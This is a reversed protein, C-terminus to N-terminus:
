SHAAAPNGHKRVDEESVGMKAFVELQEASFAEPKDKGPEGTPTRRGIPVEGAKATKVIDELISLPASKIAEASLPIVKGAAQAQRILEARKLEDREAKITAVDASLTDITAKVEASMAAPPAKSLSDVKAAADTLAKEVAAEDAEATLTVGLAALLAILAPHPKMDPQKIEIELSTSLAAFFPALQAPATAAEITLGDIEGHRCLGASHLAYVTGDERRFVAPSLDRFHGGELAAKGEPTWQLDTLVIGVGKEVAPVGYAAVLRPEKEAQYAATGEVTNHDFDLAVRDARKLAQMSAAFAAATVENVIVKGRKRADHTGWPAVVLRAPLTGGTAELGAVRFACLNLSPSTAAAKPM